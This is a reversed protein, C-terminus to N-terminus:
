SIVILENGEYIDLKLEKAVKQARELCEERTNKSEIWKGEAITKNHEDKIFWMYFEIRSPLKELVIKYM